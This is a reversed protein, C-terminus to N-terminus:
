GFRRRSEAVADFAGRVETYTQQLESLVDETDAPTGDQLRSKLIGHFSAIGAEGRHRWSPRDPRETM